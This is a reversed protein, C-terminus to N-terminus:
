WNGEGSMGYRMGLHHTRGRLTLSAQDPPTLRSVESYQLISFEGGYMLPPTSQASPNPPATATATSPGAEPEYVAEIDLGYIEIRHDAMRRDDSHQPSVM